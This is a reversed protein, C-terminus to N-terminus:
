EVLHKVRSQLQDKHIVGPRLIRVVFQVGDLIQRVHLITEYLFVDILRSVHKLLQSRFRDLIILDPRPNTLNQIKYEAEKRRGREVRERESEGSRKRWRGGGRRM